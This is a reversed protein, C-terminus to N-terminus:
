RCGARQHCTGTIEEGGFHVFRKRSPKGLWTSNLSLLMVASNESYDVADDSRPSSLVACRNSYNLGLRLCQKRFAGCDYVDPAAGRSDSRAYARHGM